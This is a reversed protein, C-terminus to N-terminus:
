GSERFYATKLPRAVSGSVKGNKYCGSSEDVMGLRGGLAGLWTLFALSIAQSASMAASVWGSLM